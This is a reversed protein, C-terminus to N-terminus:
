LSTRWTFKFRDLLTCFQALDFDILPLTCSGRAMQEEGIGADGMSFMCCVRSLLRIRGDSVAPDKSQTVELQSLASPAILADGAPFFM